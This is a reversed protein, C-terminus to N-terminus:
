GRPLRKNKGGRRFLKMSKGVVAAALFPGFLFPGAGFKVRFCKQPSKDSLFIPLSLSPTNLQKEHQRCVKGRTADNSNPTSFSFPARHNGRNTISGCTATAAATIANVEKSEAAKWRRDKGCGDDHQASMVSTPCSPPLLLLVCLDLWEIIIIRKHQTHEHPPLRVLLFFLLGSLFTLSSNTSLDTARACGGTRGDSSVFSRIFLLPPFIILKFLFVCVCLCHPVV